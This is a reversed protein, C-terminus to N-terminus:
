ALNTDDLEGIYHTDFVDVGLKQGVKLFVRESDIDMDTLQYMSGEFGIKVPKDTGAPLIYAYRRPAVTKANTEDEFPNTFVVVSVGNVTTFYQNSNKFEKMADSMASDGVLGTLKKAFDIDCVCSVNRNYRQIVSSVSNFKDLTIGAIAETNVDPASAMATHLTTIVKSTIKSEMDDVLKDVVGVFGETSGSKFQDLDYYAGGQLKIPESTFEEQFGVRVYDVGTGRASWKMKIKGKPKTFKIKQGDNVHQVEAVYDLFNLKPM